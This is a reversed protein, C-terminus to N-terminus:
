RIAGVGSTGDMHLASISLICFVEVATLLSRVGGRISKRERGKEAHGPKGVLSSIIINKNSVPINLYVGVRLFRVM